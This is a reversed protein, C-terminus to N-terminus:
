YNKKPHNVIIIIGAIILLLGIIEKYSIIENMFLYALLLTFIPSCYILASITSINNHTILNLYLLFSLLGFLVSTFAVFIVIPKTFKVYDVRIQKWRYITYPLLLISAIIWSMIIITDPHIKWRHLLHKHVIPGIGLGMSILLALPIFYIILVNDSKM